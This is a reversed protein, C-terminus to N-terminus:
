LNERMKWISIYLIAVQSVLLSFVTHVKQITHKNRHLQFIDVKLHRQWFSKESQPCPLKCRPPYCLSLSISLFPYHSRTENQEHQPWNLILPILAVNLMKLNLFLAPFIYFPSTFSKLLFSNNSRPVPSINTFWQVILPKSIDGSINCIVDRTDKFAVRRNKWIWYFKSNSKQQTKHQKKILSPTYFINM